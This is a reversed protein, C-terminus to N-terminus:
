KFSYRASAYFTRGKPDGYSTDYGIQFQSPMFAKPPARDFLNRVGLTLARAKCGSYRAQADYVDLSGARRTGTCNNGPQFNVCTLRDIETYGNQFNQALTAGWPGSTWDITAYHRWRSIAG